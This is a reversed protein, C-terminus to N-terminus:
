LRRWIGALYATLHMLDRPFYEKFCQMCTQCSFTVSNFCNIGTVYFTQSYFRISKSQLLLVEYTLTELLQENQLQIIEQRKPESLMNKAIDKACEIGHFILVFGAQHKIDIRVTNLTTSSFNWLHIYLFLNLLLFLMTGDNIFTDLLADLQIVEQKRGLINNFFKLKFLPFYIKKFRPM